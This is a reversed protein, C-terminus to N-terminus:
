KEASASGNLYKEVLKLFDKKINPYMPPKKRYTDFRTHIEWENQYNKKFLIVTIDIIYKSPVGNIPNSQM